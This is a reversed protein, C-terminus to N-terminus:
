GGVCFTYTAADTGDGPLLMSFTITWIGPMFLNLLTIDYQGRGKPTVTPKISSGHGHDPMFPTVTITLNDIPAGSKADDVEIIWENNGKDVPNPNISLLRTAIKGNTGSQVMGPTFTQARRDTACLAPAPGTDPTDDGSRSTCAAAALVLAARALKRVSGKAPPVQALNGGERRRPLSLYAQRMDPRAKATPTASTAPTGQTPVPHELASPALPSM